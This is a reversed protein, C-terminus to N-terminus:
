CYCVSHHTNEVADGHIENTPNWLFHARGVRPHSANSLNFNLWKSGPDMRVITPFGDFHKRVLEGSLQNEGLYLQDPGAFQELVLQISDAHFPNSDLLETLKIM